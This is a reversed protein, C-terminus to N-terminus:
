GAATKYRARSIAFDDFYDNIKATDAKLDILLSQVYEHGKENNDIHERLSEAFFGMMVAIFIMLGELLYEKFGKKEIEPHHHVEMTKIESKSHEIESKNSESNPIDDRYSDPASNGEEESKPSGDESKEMAKQKRSEAKLEEKPKQSGKNSM